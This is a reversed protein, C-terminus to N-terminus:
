ADGMEKLLLGRNDEWEKAKKTQFLLNRCIYFRDWFKKAMLATVFLDAGEQIEKYLAKNTIRRVKKNLKAKGM